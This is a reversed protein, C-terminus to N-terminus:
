LSHLIIRFDITTNRSSFIVFENVICKGESKRICKNLFSFSCQFTKDWRKSTLSDLFLGPFLCLFVTAYNVKTKSYFLVSDHLLKKVIGWFAPEQIKVGLWALHTVASLSRDEVACQLSSMPKLIYSDRKFYQLNM